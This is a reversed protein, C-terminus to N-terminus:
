SRTMILLTIVMIFITTVVPAVLAVGVIDKEKGLRALVQNRDLIVCFHQLESAIKCECISMTSLSSSTAIPLTKM